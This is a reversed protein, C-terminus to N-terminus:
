MTIVKDALHMATVIDLMNTTEGVRKMDSIGYHELCTGCVMLKIGEKELDELDDMVASTEITLKVGNNVLVVRWLDPGFEKLTRIFNVMLKLGLSDDGVGIRDTTVMVLIKRKEMDPASVPVPVALVGADQDRTGTIQYADDVQEDTVRYAKSKLYRCVNQKSADNSVIVKLTVPNIEEVIARTMLVPTPCDQNRADIENMNKEQRVTSAVISIVSVMDIM